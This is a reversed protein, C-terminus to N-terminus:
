RVKLNRNDYISMLIKVVDGLLAAMKEHKVSDDALRLIRAYDQIFNEGFETVRIKSSKVTINLNGHNAEFVDAFKINIGQLMLGQEALQLVLCTSSRVVDSNESVDTTLSVYEPIAKLQTFYKIVLEKLGEVIHKDKKILDKAVSILFNALLTCYICSFSVNDSFMKELHLVYKLEPSLTENSKSAKDDAYRYQPYNQDFINM